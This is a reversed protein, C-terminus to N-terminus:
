GLRLSFRLGLWLAETHMRCATHVSVNMQKHKGQMMQELKRRDVKYREEVYDELLASEGTPSSASGVQKGYSHIDGDDVVAAQYRVNRENVVFGDSLL